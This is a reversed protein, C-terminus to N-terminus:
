IELFIEFHAEKEATKWCLWSYCVNAREAFNRRRVLGRQVYRKSRGEEKDRELGLRGYDSSVTLICKVHASLPRELRPSGWASCVCM